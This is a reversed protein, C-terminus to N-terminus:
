SPAKVGGLKMEFNEIVLDLYRSASIQSLFSRTEEVLSALAPMAQIHETHRVRSLIFPPVAQVLRLGGQALQELASSAVRSQAAQTATSMVERLRRAEEAQISVGTHHHTCYHDLLTAMHFARSAEELGHLVALGAFIRRMRGRRRLLALLGSVASLLDLRQGKEPPALLIEVADEDIDIYRVRAVHYVLGRSLAAGLMEGVTPVPMAKAAGILLSRLLITQRNQKLHENSRQASANETV